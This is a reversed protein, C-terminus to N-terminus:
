APAEQPQGAAGVAPAEQPQGAAGVAPAAQPEGARAQPEGTAGVAASAAQPEEAAGVGAPAVDRVRQSVVTTVGDGQMSVGYLADAIEMAM